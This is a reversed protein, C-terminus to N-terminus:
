YGHQGMGTRLARKSWSFNMDCFSALPSKEKIEAVTNQREM